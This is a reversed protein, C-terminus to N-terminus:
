TLLPCCVPNARLATLNPWVPLGIHFEAYELVHVIAANREAFLDLISQRQDLCEITV